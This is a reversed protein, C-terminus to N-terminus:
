GDPHYLENLSNDFVQGATTKNNIRTETYPELHLSM